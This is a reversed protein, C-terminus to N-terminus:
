KDELQKFTIHKNHYLGTFFKVIREQAPNIKEGFRNSLDISIERITKTGDIALWTASGLEDLDIFFYKSKGNLRFLRSLWRSKFKPVLVTVLGNENVEHSHITMPILDSANTNKLINRSKLM